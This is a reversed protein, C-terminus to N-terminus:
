EGRESRNIIASRVNGTRKDKLLVAAAVSYNDEPRTGGRISNYIVESIEKPTNWKVEDRMPEDIFPMLPSENGGRYTTIIRCEGPEINYQDCWVDKMGNIRRVSHMAALGNLYCASIRPTFNPPDPEFSTINIDNGDKDKEYYPKALANLLVYGPSFSFDLSAACNKILKTQAGNSAVLFDGATSLATYLLLAPNGKELQEKDTVETKIRAIRGDSELALKRARSPPSRGSLSYGIFIDGSPTMGAIIGRGSYIM